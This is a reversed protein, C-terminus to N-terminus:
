RSSESSDREHCGGPALNGIMFAMKNNSDSHIIEYDLGAKPFIVTRRDEKRVIRTPESNDALVLNFLAVDLALAIKRLTSLPRTSRARRSRASWAPPFRPFGALGRVTINKQERIERIREGVSM